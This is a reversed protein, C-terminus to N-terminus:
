RLRAGFADGLRKLIRDIVQDADRDELTGSDSRLSLSFALSHKGTEVQDGTYVDFVEVTEVLTPDVRRIEEIIQGAAVGTDLVVALDREIPPFKPLPVYDNGWESWLRAVSTGQIEFIYVDRDVDFAACLDRHAQGWHGITEGNRLIRAGQGARLFGVSEDIPEYTVESGHGSGRGSESDLLLADVVGKLDLVDVDRHDGRWASASAQGAMLGGVLLSEDPLSGPHPSFVRGVEFLGVGSQRQNFNRRAVDFLGPLLSTRLHSVGEAPPNALRCATTGMLQTWRDDVISPSIIEDLGLEVLGERLSRAIEYGGRPQQPIPGRVIEAGEVQHYGHIRGVEEVLDVERELDPRFAPVTVVLDQDSGRDVVCGLAQLIRRCEESDINASLLQSAREPRLPIQPLSTPAPYVDIAGDDIVGGTIQALLDAARESAFAAMAVDAGREFRASAETRLGLRSATQRVTRRDFFASELLIDTTSDDVESNAGGMIGALAVPGVGDAIVLDEPTLKQDTGDLTQLPEGPIARRVVIRGERLRALDFAHLPQGLELMVFNTVDVVNNIPRQGVARLRNQLWSPSPAVQIGRLIRAVYRPCGVTDDIDVRCTTEVPPGQADLEFRPLNLPRQSLASVERAIGVISLCDPRNPTVEFDIVVDNLGAADAYPTGVSYDSPLVMIGSADTGLELEAESCIMGSSAVGRLKAEGIRTGDPLTSGPLIVAVRQGTDVNLAGCVITRPASEGVDVTCVSLRDANPHQARDLVHGVIVGDLRAGLDEVAEEELGAMTLREVLEEIDWDVEVYDALWSRTIKM